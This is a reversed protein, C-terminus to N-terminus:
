IKLLGKEFERILGRINLEHVSKVAVREDSELCDSIRIKETLEVSSTGPQYLKKFRATLNSLYLLDREVKTKNVPYGHGSYITGIELEFIKYLSNILDSSSGWYFYPLNFSESTNSILTDGAILSRQSPIGLCISDDSHGPTHYIKLYELENYENEITVDAKTLRKQDVPKYKRPNIMARENVITAWYDAHNIQITGQQKLYKNGLCHDSHYHTNILYKLPKGYSLAIKALEQSDSPLLLSDVVILYDDYILLYANVCLTRSRVQVICGDQTIEDIM